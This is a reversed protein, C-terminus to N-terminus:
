ACAPRGPRATCRGARMSARGAPGRPSRPLAYQARPDQVTSSAPPSWLRLRCQSRVAAPISAAPVWGICACGLTRLSPARQGPRSTRWGAARGYASSLTVSWGPREAPAQSRRPSGPQRPARRKTEASSRWACYHQTSHANRAHQERCGHDSPQVNATHRVSRRSERRAKPPATQTVAFTGPHLRPPLYASVGTNSACCTAMTVHLIGGCRDADASCGVGHQWVGVM